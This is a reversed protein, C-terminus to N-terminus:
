VWAWLENGRRALAFLVPSLTVLDSNQAQNGVLTAQAANLGTARLHILNQGWLATGPSTADADGPFKSSICAKLFSKSSGTQIQM